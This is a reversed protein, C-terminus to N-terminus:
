WRGMSGLRCTLGGGELWAFRGNVGMGGGGVRAPEVEQRDSIFAVLLHLGAVKHERFPLVDLLAHPRLLSVDDMDLDEEAASRGALADAACSPPFADNLDAPGRSRACLM